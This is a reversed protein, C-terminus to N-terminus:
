GKGKQKKSKVEKYMHIINQAIVSAELYATDNRGTTPEVHRLANALADALEEPDHSCVKCGTTRGIVDFV